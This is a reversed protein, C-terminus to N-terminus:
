QKTGVMESTQIITPLQFTATGVISRSDQSLTARLTGSLREGRFNVEEALGQGFRDQFSVSLTSTAQLEGRTPAKGGVLTKKGVLVVMNGTVKAEYTWEIDFGKESRSAPVKEVIRWKGAM